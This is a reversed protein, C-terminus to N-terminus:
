NRPPLCRKYASQLPGGFWIWIIWLDPRLMLPVRLVANKYYGLLNDLSIEGRM